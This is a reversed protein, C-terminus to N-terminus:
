VCGVEVAQHGANAFVGLGCRPYEGVCVRGLLVDRQLGHRVRIWWEKLTMKDFLDLLTRGAEHEELYEVNEELPDEVSM